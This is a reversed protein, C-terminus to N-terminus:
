LLAVIDLFEERIEKVKDLYEPTWRMGKPIDRVKDRYKDILKYPIPTGTMNRYGTTIAINRKNDVYCDWNWGYVGQNFFKPDEGLFIEQLQCYGTQYCNFNKNMYPKKALTKIAM